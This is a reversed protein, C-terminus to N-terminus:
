LGRVRHRLHGRSGKPAPRARRAAARVLEVGHIDPIVVTADEWDALLDSLLDVYAREAETLQPRALLEDLRCETAEAQAPTRIKVPPFAEVLRLYEPRSFGLITRGAVNTTISM